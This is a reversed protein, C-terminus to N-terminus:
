HLCCPQCPASVNPVSVLLHCWQGAQPSYNHCFREQICACVCLSTCATSFIYLCSHMGGYVCVRCVTIHVCAHTRTWVCLRMTDRPTHLSRRLRSCVHGWAYVIHGSLCHLSVIARLVVGMLREAGEMVVVLRERDSERKWKWKCVRRWVCVCGCVRVTLIYSFIILLLSPCMCLFTAHMCVCVCVNMNVSLCACLYTPVSHVCVYLYVCVPVFLM